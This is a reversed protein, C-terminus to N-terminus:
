NLERPVQVVISLARCLRLGDIACQSAAFEDHCCWVRYAYQQIALMFNLNHGSCPNGM